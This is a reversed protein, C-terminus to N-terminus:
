ESSLLPELSPLLSSGCLLDEEVRLEMKLPPLLVGGVVSFERRDGELGLKFPVFPLLVDGGGM